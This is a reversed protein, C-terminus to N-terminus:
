APIWDPGDFAFAACHGALRLLLRLHPHTEAPNARVVTLDYAGSEIVSHVYDLLPDPM